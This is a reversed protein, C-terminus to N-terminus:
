ETRFSWVVEKNERLLRVVVTYNTRGRLPAKPILCFCDRPALEPNSPAQPSAFWCTVEQGNKRGEFLQMVAEAPGRDTRQGLQLTIPYGFRSQDEGPVPNPLEPVFRTPIGSAGDPPWVVHWSERRPAVMSGSDLVVVDGAQGFGIRILGPDLLPLRHYFTGMWATLAAEGNKVGPAIVAHAGAWAGPASWERHDANEEHADPWRAAHEPHRVLYEAHARCGRSLEPDVLVPATAELSASAATFARTRLATLADLASQADRPLATVQPQLDQALGPLLGVLWARWREEFEPLSAGVAKAFREAASGGKTERLKQTVATLTGQEVLFETVFTAKLLNEGQIMGFEPLLAEAWPPDERHQALYRLFMRSGHRRRPDHRSRGCRQLRYRNN